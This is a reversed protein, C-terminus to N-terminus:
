VSKSFTTSSNFGKITLWCSLFLLHIGNQGYFIFNVSYDFIQLWSVIFVISVALFSWVSLFRPILRTKFLTYYFLLAGSSFIILILFHTWYYEEVKLIGLTEFYGVDPAGVKIFEQSLSVLSLHSINSVITLIFGTIWLGFYWYGISKNYQKLIPFLVIAIGVGIANAVLDLLMAIKMQISNEFVENLFNQSEILSTSLGRLHNGIAGTVFLVLFLIGVIQGTKKISDM